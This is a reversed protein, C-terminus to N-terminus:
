AEAGEQHIKPRLSNLAETPAMGLERRIQRAIALIPRKRLVAGRVAMSRFRPDTPRHDFLPLLHQGTM